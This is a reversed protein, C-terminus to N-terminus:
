KLRTAYYLAGGVHVFALTFLVVGLPVHALHWLALLQRTVALSQVQMLLRYRELLLRELKAAQAPGTASLERLARRL